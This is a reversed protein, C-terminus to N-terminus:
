FLKLLMDFKTTNYLRKKFPMKGFRSLIEKGATYLMGLNYQPYFTSFDTRVNFFPCKHGSKKQPFM